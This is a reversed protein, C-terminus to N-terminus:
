IGPLMGLRFALDAWAAKLENVAHDHQAIAGAVALKAEDLDLPTLFGTEVRLGVIRAAEEAREVAQQRAVVHAQAESVGELALAGARHVRRLTSDVERAAAREDIQAREASLKASGSWDVTVGVGVHWSLASPGSLTQTVHATGAVQPLGEQAALTVARESQHLQLRVRQAAPDFQEILENFRTPDVAGLLAAMDAYLASGPHLYTPEAAPALRALVARGLADWDLDDTFAYPEAHELPLPLPITSADCGGYVVEALEWLAEERNRGAARVQEEAQMLLDEETRWAGLGMEGVEFRRSAHTFREKAIRAREQALVWEQAAREAQRFATVVGQEAQFRAGMLELMDVHDATHEAPAAPWIVRNWTAQLKGDPGNLNKDVSIMLDETLPWKASITGQGAVRLPSGEVGAGFEFTAFPRHSMANQRETLDALAAMDQVSLFAPGCRAAENLLQSLSLEWVATDGGREVNALTVASFAGVSAFILTVIGVLWRHQKTFGTLREM